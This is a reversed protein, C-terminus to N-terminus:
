LTADTTCAPYKKQLKAYVYPLHITSSESPCGSPIFMVYCVNFTQCDCLAALDFSSFVGDSPDLVISGLGGVTSTPISLWTDMWPVEVLEDDSLDGFIDSESDLYNFM